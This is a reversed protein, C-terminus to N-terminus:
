YFAVRLAKRVSHMKAAEHRYMDALALHLRASEKSIANRAADDERRACLEYQEMRAEHDM